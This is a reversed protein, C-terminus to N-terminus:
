RLLGTKTFLSQLQNIRGCLATNEEPYILLVMDHGGYLRCQLLRYAERGLRKARNRKVANGFGRSFTFCIRNHPLNNELVFLKAGRCGASKGCKFAAQIEGRRKLHEKRRFRFSKKESERKVPSM